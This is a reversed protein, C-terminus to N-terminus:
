KSLIRVVVDILDLLDDLDEHDFKNKFNNM